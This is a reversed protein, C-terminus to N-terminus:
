DELYNVFELARITLQGMRCFRSVALDISSSFIQLKQEDKVSNM